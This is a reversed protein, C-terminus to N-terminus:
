DFWAIAALDDIYEACFASVPVLCGRLSSAPAVSRDRGKGAPVTVNWSLIWECGHYAKM